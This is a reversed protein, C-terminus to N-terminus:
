GSCEMATSSIKVRLKAFDKDLDEEGIQKELAAITEGIARLETAASSEEEKAWLLMLAVARETSTERARVLRRVALDHIDSKLQKGSKLHTIVGDDVGEIKEFDENHRIVVGRERMHYGLADSIEDDLFDM